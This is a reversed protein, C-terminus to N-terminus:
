KIDAPQSEPTFSQTHNRKRTATHLKSCMLDWIKGTYRIQPNPHIATNSHIHSDSLMCALTLLWCHSKYEIHPNNPHAVRQSCSITGQYRILQTYSNTWHMVVISHQLIKRVLGFPNDSKYATNSRPATHTLPETPWWMLFLATSTLHTEFGLALHM